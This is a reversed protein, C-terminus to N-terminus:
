VVYGIMKDLPLHVRKLIDFEIWGKDNRKSSFSFLICICEQDYEQHKLYPLINKSIESLLSKNKIVYSTLCVSFSDGYENTHPEDNLHMYEKVRLMDKSSIDMCQETTDIQKQAHNRIRESNKFRGCSCLFLTLRFDAVIM